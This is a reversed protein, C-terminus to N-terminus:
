GNGDKKFQEAQKATEEMVTEVLRYIQISGVLIGLGIFILAGFPSTGFRNDIWLGVALGLLISVVM